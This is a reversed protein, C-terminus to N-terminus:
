SSQHIQHAIRERDKEPYIYKLKSSFDNNNIIIPLSLFSNLRNFNCLRWAEDKKSPMGKELLLQRGISQEKKLYGQTPPLSKLWKRCIASSNM